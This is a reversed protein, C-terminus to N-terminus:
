MVTSCSGRRGCFLSGTTRSTRGHCRVRISSSLRRSLHQSSLIRPAIPFAPLKLHLKHDQFLFCLGQIDILRHLYDFAFLFMGILIKNVELIWYSPLSIVRPLVPIQNELRQNYNSSRQCDTLTSQRFVCLM